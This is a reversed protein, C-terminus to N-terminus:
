GCNRDSQLYRALFASMKPAKSFTRIYSNAENHRDTRLSCSLEWHVPNRSIQYKEFIQRSFELEMLIQRYYRASCM